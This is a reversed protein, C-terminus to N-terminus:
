IEVSWYNSFKDCYVKHFMDSDMSLELVDDFIIIINKDSHTESNHSMKSNSQGFENSIITVNMVYGNIVFSMITTCFRPTYMYTSHDTSTNAAKSYTFCPTFSNHSFNLETIVDLKSYRSTIFDIVGLIILEYHYITDADFNNGFKYITNLSLDDDYDSGDLKRFNEHIISPENFLKSCFDCINIKDKALTQITNLTISENQINQINKSDNNIENKDENENENEVYTDGKLIERYQTDFHKKDYIKFGDSILVTDVNRDNHDDTLTTQSNKMLTKKLNKELNNKLNEKSVHVLLSRLYYKDTLISSIKAM